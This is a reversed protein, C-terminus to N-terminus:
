YDNWGRLRSGRSVSLWFYRLASSCFSISNVRSCASFFFFASSLFFADAGV